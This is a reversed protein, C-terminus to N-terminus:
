RPPALNSTFKAGQRSEANRLVVSRQELIINFEISNRAVRKAAIAALHSRAASAAFWRRRWGGNRLLCVPLCVPARARIACLGQYIVRLGNLAWKSRPRTPRDCTALRRRNDQAPRNSAQGSRSRSDIM